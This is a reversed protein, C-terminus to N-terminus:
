MTFLFPCIHLSFFNNHLLRHLIGTYEAMRDDLLPGDIVEGCYEIVFQGPQLDDDTFLGWGKEGVREIHVAAWRKDRFRHNTCSSGCPCSDECEIHSIRNICAEGCNFSIPVPM